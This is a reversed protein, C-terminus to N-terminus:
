QILTLVAVVAIAVRHNSLKRQWKRLCSAQGDGAANDTRADARQTTKGTKAGTTTSSSNSIAFRARLKPLSHISWSAGAVGGMFM